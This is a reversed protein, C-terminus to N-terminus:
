KSHAKSPRLLYRSKNLIYLYEIAPKFVSVSDVVTWGVMHTSPATYDVTSDNMQQDKFCSLMQLNEAARKLEPMM